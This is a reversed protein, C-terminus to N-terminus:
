ITTKILVREVRTGINTDINLMKMAFNGNSRAKKVFVFYAVVGLLVVGKFITSIM